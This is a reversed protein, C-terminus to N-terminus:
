ESEGTAKAIAARAGRVVGWPHKGNMGDWRNSHRECFDLTDKLAELLDPAAKEAPTLEYLATWEPGAHYSGRDFEVINTGELLWARPERKASM